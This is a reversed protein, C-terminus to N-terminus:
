IFFGKLVVVRIFFLTFFPGNKAVIKENQRCTRKLSQWVSRSSFCHSFPVFPGMKTKAVIKEHPALDKLIGVGVESASEYTNGVLSKPKHKYLKEKSICV